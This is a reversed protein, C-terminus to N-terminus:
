AGRRVASGDFKRWGTFGRSMIPRVYHRHSRGTEHKLKQRKAKALMKLDGATKGGPGRHCPVCLVAANSLVPDGLLADARIHDCDWSKGTLDCGCAECRGQAREYAAKRVSAPFNRRTM